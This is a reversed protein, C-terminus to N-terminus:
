GEGQRIELITNKSDNPDTPLLLLRMSDELSARQAQLEPIEVQALERLEPDALAAEDDAIQRELDRYKDFAVVLPEIEGRERNLRALKQRDGLVQPQCLLEDLEVFRKALQELRERPLM